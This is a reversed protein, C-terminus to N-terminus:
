FKGGVTIGATWTQSTGNVLHAAGGGLTTARQVQVDPMVQYSGTAKLEICGDKVAQAAGAILDGAVSPNAKCFIYFGLAAKLGGFFDWSNRSTSHSASSLPGNDAGRYRANTFALGGYGGLTFFAKPALPITFDLGLKTGAQDLNIRENLRHVFTGNTSILTLDNRFRKHRYFYGKYPFIYLGNGIPVVTGFRASLKARTQTFDSNISGNNNFTFGGTGLVDLYTPLQGPAISGFNVGSKGKLRSFEFRLGSTWAVPINGISHPGFYVSGFVFPGWARTDLSALPALNTNFSRVGIDTVPGKSSRVGAGGEVLIKRLRTFTEQPINRNSLGSTPEDALLVEPQPALSDAIAVRQREGGSLQKPRSNGNAGGATRHTDLFELVESINDTAIRFKRINENLGAIEAFEDALINTGNNRNKEIIKTLLDIRTLSAQKERVATENNSDRWDFPLDAWDPTDLSGTSDQFERTREAFSYKQFEKAEADFVNCLREVEKKASAILTKLEGISDDQHKELFEQQELYEWFASREPNLDSFTQATAPAQLIAAAIMFIGIRLKVLIMFERM